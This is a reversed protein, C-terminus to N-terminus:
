DKRRILFLILVFYVGILVGQALWTRLLWPWFVDPDDKNVFAWGFERSVSEIVGEASNVATSRAAEYDLRARQYDEVQAQYVEAQAEYLNIESRYQDQILGVDDQYAQLANLYEVMAVQDNQDAPPEPAPPIEPEAPRDGLPPPEQPAEQDVEPAYYQGVGPFDCSGPTFIAAGMCNCNNAAKDALTLSDRLEESLDWCADAAVDSGMGTIGIFSQFAWRTSAVASINEPVPALAGSLVIQPVIFLIMLLPAASSTPALASALLGSMMGAMVALVMTVYFLGFEALGGPMDFALYHMITFAAGQYFALLLAVWVKSSVYPLIKLNVLRERKYIDSEKVFERMQSFGGVLLAYVTLLFLTIAGNSADGTLYDYPARGMLPAIVFDLAAILLPAVLMLVLSTKDRVLININRASLVLFQHLGSARSKRKKKAPAEEKTPPQAGPMGAPLGAPLGFPAAPAQSAQLPQVVYQQYAQDEMYRRAWDQASGKQPDDLIAYITDFDMARSRQERESRFSDFYELAEEPPGFWALYGGRALFVVKDALMVNKTAHTVMVITRGQDALRRMLHMFATEIGPDLGSTPEDLFFLGPETLLEVGISVRKVQGGSLKSIANDKRHTLDLDELVQLIRAHREAPRTDRPMRLKAAYNLAQYVTLEKHIIDSQPVYGIDNVVAEFNKYINSGDVLVQGHTAPRYGAIADVLTSKGGGSQGVVVIFERPKFSLSINQLINLDKRVWKNLGIADIRLGSAEEFQALAEAGMVFRHRGIRIEDAEQLWVEGEVRQDNVFTGNASRLDRLRFRAGVREIEAHFRSVTPSDLVVDNSADRGIQVLTKEGFQVPRAAGRTAHAPDMYTLSVMLGPDLSGIRLIDGHQLTRGSEVPRGELLLPNAAEPLVHVQFGDRSRELVAHYRSVIRSDIVIQNDGARGLTHRAQNLTYTQQVGGAVTVLLQPPVAPQSLFPDEGIMTAGGDGPRMAAGEIMTASATPPAGELMTADAGAPRPAQFELRVSQGLTIEDGPQLRRPGSLREGNLFTGNSSGLDAIFYSGDQQFLRAHRRSVGPSDIQIDVGPERGLVLEPRALEYAQGSQPGETRVLQIRNPNGM